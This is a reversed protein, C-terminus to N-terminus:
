SILPCRRLILSFEGDDRDYLDVLPDEPDYIVLPGQLGQCRQSGFHSHYWYTGTQGAPNFKHIFTEHQPIPCQTVFSAGDAWNSKHQFIGHFHKPLHTLIRNVFNSMYTIVISTELGIADNTLENM